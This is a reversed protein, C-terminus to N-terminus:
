GRARAAYQDGLFEKLGDDHPTVESAVRDYIGRCYEAAFRLIDELDIDVTGYTHLFNLFDQETMSDSYHSIVIRVKKMEEDPNICDPHYLIEDDEAHGIVVYGCNVRIHDTNICSLKRGFSSCEHSNPPSDENM